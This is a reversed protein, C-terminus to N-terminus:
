TPPRPRRRSGKPAEGRKVRERHARMKLAATLDNHPDVGALKYAERLAEIPDTPMRKWGMFHVDLRKALEEVRRQFDADKEHERLIIRALPRHEARAGGHKGGRVKPVRYVRLARLAQEQRTLKHYQEYFTQVLAELKSLFRQADAARDHKDHIRLMADRIAIDVFAVLEKQVADLDDFPAGPTARSAIRGLVRWDDDNPDRNGGRAPRSVKKTL